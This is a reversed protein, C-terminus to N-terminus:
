LKFLKIANQTTESAIEDMAINKIDSIKQAIYVLNSSDNRKGRFPVPTLYPSDTELIIETLSIQKIMQDMNSNKYTVVGNIGIKFGLDIVINAQESTGTFSHFVGSPLGSRYKDLISIIEDFADRCHIIIPLNLEKALNIQYEFAERQESIYTKDWYLDIGIEGIAISKIYPIFAFIKKLQTKYESNVSTPHLGLTPYCILPFKDCLETLPEITSYDINPLVIKIIGNSVAQNILQNRDNDFEPLFLHAHSDIFEM